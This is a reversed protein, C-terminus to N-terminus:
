NEGNLYGIFREASASFLGLQRGYNEMTIGGDAIIYMRLSIEGTPSEYARGFNQRYNYENIAAAIQAGTANEPRTFTALISTGMCNASTAQDACAMLLADAKLGNAFEVSMNPEGDVDSATADLESLTAKFADRTFRDLQRDADYTQAQAMTASGAAFMLALAISYKM